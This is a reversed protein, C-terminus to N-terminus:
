RDSQRKHGKLEAIDPINVWSELTQKGLMLQVSQFNKCVRSEAAQHAKSQASGISYVARGMRELWSKERYEGGIPVMVEEMGKCARIKRINDGDWKCLM